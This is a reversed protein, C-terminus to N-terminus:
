VKQVFIGHPVANVLNGQPMLHLHVIHPPILEHITPSELHLISDLTNLNNQAEQLTKM